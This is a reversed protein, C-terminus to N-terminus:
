KDVILTIVASNTYSASEGIIKVTVPGALAIKEWLPSTTTNTGAASGNFVSDMTLTAGATTQGAVRPYFKTDSGITAKTFLTGYDDTVTVTGTCSASMNVYISELTGRIVYTATNTLLGVVPLTYIVNDMGARATNVALLILLPLILRFKKM